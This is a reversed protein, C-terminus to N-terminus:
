RAAPRKQQFMARDAEAFLEAASQGPRWAATGIAGGVAIKRAAGAVAYDGFVWKRIREVRAAADAPTCALLAVFEDGGWRGVADQARFQSKLEHSFQCLLNDGAPHGYTDNIAKFGNLDIVILCFPAAAAVKREADRELGQRNLLGTLPDTESRREAEALREEYQALKKELAGVTERGEEVMREVSTRLAAASEGVLIRVQALDELNGAAQLRRTVETFQAQYRTDRAAVTK